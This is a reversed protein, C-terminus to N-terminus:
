KLSVEVETIIDSLDQKNSEQRIKNVYEVSNESIDAREAWIGFGYEETPYLAISAQNFYSDVVSKPVRYEKGIKMAGFKGERILKIIYRRSVRLIKAVEEVSFVDEYFSVDGMIKNREPYLQYGELSLNM